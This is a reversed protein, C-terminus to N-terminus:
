ELRKKFFFHSGRVYALEGTDKDPRSYVNEIMDNLSDWINLDGGRGAQELWYMGNHVAWHYDHGGSVMPFCVAWAFPYDFTLGAIGNRQEKIFDYWIMFLLHMPQNGERAAVSGAQPVVGGPSFYMEVADKWERKTNFSTWGLEEPRLATVGLTKIFQEDFGTMFTYCNTFPGFSRESTWVSPSISALLPMESQLQLLCFVFVRFSSLGM